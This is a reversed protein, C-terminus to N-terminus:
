FEIKEFSSELVSKPLSSFQNINFEPGLRFKFAENNEKKQILKKIAEIQNDLPMMGLQVRNENVVEKFSDKMKILYYKDKIRVIPNIFLRFPHGMLGTYKAFQDPHIDNDRLASEMISDIKLYKRQSFHTLLTSTPISHFGKMDDSCNLGIKDVSPFGYKKILKFFQIYHVSDTKAIEEFSSGNYRVEQDLNYLQNIESQYDFNINKKSQELVENLKNWQKPHKQLADINNFFDICLSKEALARANKFAFGVDKEELGLLLANYHDNPSAKDHKRLASKYYQLALQRDESVVLATKAQEILQYQKIRK